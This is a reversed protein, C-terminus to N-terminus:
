RTDGRGTGEDKGKNEKLVQAHSNVQIVFGSSTFFSMKHQTVQTTQVCPNLEEFYLRPYPCLIKKNNNKPMM